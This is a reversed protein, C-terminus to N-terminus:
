EEGKHHDKAPDCREDIEEKVDDMLTSAAFQAAGEICNEVFRRVCAESIRQQSHEANVFNFSLGFQM